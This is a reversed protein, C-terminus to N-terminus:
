KWSHMGTPSAPPRLQSASLHQTSTYMQTAILLEAALPIVGFPNSGGAGPLRHVAPACLQRPPDAGTGQAADDCLSAAARERGAVGAAAAAAAPGVGVGGGAGAHGATHREKDDQGDPVQMVANADHTM